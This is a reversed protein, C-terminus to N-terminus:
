LQRNANEVMKRIEDIRNRYLDYLQPGNRRIQESTFPGNWLRMGGASLSSFHADYAGVQLGCLWARLCVEYDDYQFPAFSHPIERIHEMFLRRNVWMPARNVAEVFCFRGDKGPGEKVTGGGVIRGAKARRLSELPLQLNEELSHSKGDGELFEVEFGDKGGLFVMDPYKRMLQLGETIFELSQIDDDDQMLIVYDAQAMRICKNYMVNEYLDNARVLFENGRTLFKALRETHELSSGDDVVIIEILPYERLKKVVHIIQLSKNHSEMVVTVEPNQEYGRAKWAAFCRGNPKNMRLRKQLALKIKDITLRINM